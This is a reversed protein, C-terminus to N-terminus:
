NVNSEWAVKVNSCNKISPRPLFITFYTTWIVFSVRKKQYELIGPRIETHVDTVKIKIHITHTNLDEKSWDMLGSPKQMMRRLMKYVCHSCYPNQESIFCRQISSLIWVSRARLCHIWNHDLKGVPHMLTFGSELSFGYTWLITHGAVYWQINETRLFLRHVGNM